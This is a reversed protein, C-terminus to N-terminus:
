RRMQGVAVQVTGLVYDNAASGGGRPLVLQVAALSTARDDTASWRQGDDSWRNVTTVATLPHTLPQWTAAVDAEVDTHLDWTLGRPLAVDASQTGCTWTAAVDAASTASPIYLGGAYFRVRSRKYSTKLFGCSGVARSCPEIIYICLIKSLGRKAWNM